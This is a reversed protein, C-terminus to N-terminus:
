RVGGVALAILGLVFLVGVIAIRLGYRPGRYPKRGIVIRHKHPTGDRTM